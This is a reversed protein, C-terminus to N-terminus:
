ILEQKLKNIKEVVLDGSIYNYHYKEGKFNLKGIKAEKYLNDLEEIILLKAYDQFMDIEGQDYILEWNHKKKFEESEKSM